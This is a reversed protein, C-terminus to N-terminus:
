ECYHDLAFFQSPCSSVCTNQFFLNFVSDEETDCRYCFDADSEKCSMCPYNCDAFVTLGSTKQDILFNDTTTTTVVFSDSESKLRPNVMGGVELHVNTGGFLLKATINFVKLNRSTENYTCFRALDPASDVWCTLKPIDVNISLPLNLLINAQPPLAHAITIQFTYHAAKFPLKHEQKVSGSTLGAPVTAHMNFDAAISPSNTISTINYGLYDTVYTYFPLSPKTSGPNALYAITFTFETNKPIETRNGKLDM